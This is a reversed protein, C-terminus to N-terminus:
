FRTSVERPLVDKDTINVLRILSSASQVEKSVKRSGIQVSRVFMRSVDVKQGPVGRPSRLSSPSKQSQPSPSVQFSKSKGSPSQTPSQVVYKAASGALPQQESQGRRLFKPLSFHWFKRGHRRETDKSSSILSEASGSPIEEGGSPSASSQKFHPLGAQGTLPEKKSEVPIKGTQRDQLQHKEAEKPEAEGLKCPMDREVEPGGGTPVPSPKKEPSPTAELTAM